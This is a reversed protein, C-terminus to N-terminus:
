DASTGIYNRATLMSTIINMAWERHREIYGKKEFDDVLALYDYSVFQKEAAVKGGAIEIIMYQARRDGNLPLGASGPCIFRKGGVTEDMFVHYHGFICIDEKMQRAIEQLADLNPTNRERKLRDVIHFVRRGNKLEPDHCIHVSFGGIETTLEDPLSKIFKLDEAALEDYMDYLFPLIFDARQEVPVIYKEKNGSIIIHPYDDYARLLDITEKTGSGGFIYDGLFFVSDVNNNRLHDLVASFAIHNSHIDAVLAIRLM